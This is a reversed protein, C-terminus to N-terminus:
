TAGQCANLVIIQTLSKFTVNLQMKGIAFIMNKHRCLKKDGYLFSRVINAYSYVMKFVRALIM